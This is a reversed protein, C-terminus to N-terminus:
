HLFARADRVAPLGTTRAAHSAAPLWQFPQALIQYLAFPSASQATSRFRPGRKESCIQASTPVSVPLPAGNAGPETNEHQGPEECWGPRPDPFPVLRFVHQFAGEVPLLLTAALLFYRWAQHPRQGAPTLRRASPFSIGPQLHLEGPGQESVLLALLGGPFCM